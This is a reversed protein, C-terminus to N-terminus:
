LSKSETELYSGEAGKVVTVVDDFSGSGLSRHDILWVQRGERARAGFFEILDKVGTESLHATPEDWVELKPANPMRSQVLSALGVTCAVRLRQTEGGSWAEWPVGEPSKPSFVLIDFSRSVGGSKNEREVAFEIRWEALGLSVLSSNVYIELEDLATDVMWLRLEKFAKPWYGLFDIQATLDSLACAEEMERLAFDAINKEHRDIVTQFTGLSEDESELTAKLTEAYTRKQQAGSREKRAAQDHQKEYREAITLAQDIREIKSDLRVVGLKKEAVAAQITKLEKRAMDLDSAAEEELTMLLVEGTEQQCMPCEVSNMGELQKLRKEYKRIEKEAPAVKGRETAAEDKWENRGADLKKIRAELEFIEDRSQARKKEEAKAIKDHTDALSCADEIRELIDAQKTSQEIKADNFALATHDRSSVSEAYSATAYTLASSVKQSEQELVQVQKTANKGAQTWVYLDLVEVIFELRQTPKMDPFLTGFQGLLVVQLFQEYDMGLLDDIEKQQVPTGDLELSIRPKRERTITHTKGDIEFEASGGVKKGKARDWSEVNPGSLKRATKGYFVWCPIDWFTSKGSGNAGLQPEQKNEGTVLFLGDREPFEYKVSNRFSRFGTAEISKLKM